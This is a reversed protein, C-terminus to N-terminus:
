PEVARQCAGNRCAASNINAIEARKRLLPSAQKRRAAHAFGGLVKHLGLQSLRYRNRVLWPYFAMALPKVLPHAMIKAIVGLDVAEYMAIFVDVGRLWTGDIALAHIENLMAEQNTGLAAYDFSPTNCDVLVLRQEIDRAAINDIESACLKCGGDFYVTLPYVCGFNKPKL